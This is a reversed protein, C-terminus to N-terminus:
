TGFGIEDSFTFSTGNVITLIGADSRVSTLDPYYFKAHVTAGIVQANAGLSGL